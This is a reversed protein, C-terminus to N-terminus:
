ALSLSCSGLVVTTVGHRVSEALGPQVEVEADYHTHLDIFGPTVWKGRADISEAGALDRDIAVVKGATIGVDADRTANGAVDFVRGGKIVVDFLIPVERTEGKGRVRM